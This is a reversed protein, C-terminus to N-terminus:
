VNFAKVGHIEYSQKKVKNVATKLWRRLIEIKLVLDGADAAEIAVSPQDNHSREVEVRWLKKNADSLVRVHMKQGLELLEDVPRSEELRTRENISKTGM